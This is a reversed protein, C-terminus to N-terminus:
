SDGDGNDSRVGARDSGMAPRLHNVMQIALFSGPTPIFNALIRITAPDEREISFGTIQLDRVQLDSELIREAQDRMLLVILQEEVEEDLDASGIIKRWSESQGFVYTRADKAKDNM